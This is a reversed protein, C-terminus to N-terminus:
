FSNGDNPMESIWRGKASRVTETMRSSIDVSIIFLSVGLFIWIIYKEGQRRCLGSGRGGLEKKQPANQRLHRKGYWFTRSTEM